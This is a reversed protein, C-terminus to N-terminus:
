AIHSSDIWQLDQHSVGPLTALACLHHADAVLDHVQWCQHRGDCVEFAVAQPQAPLASWDHLAMALGQGSAKVVAEKRVWLRLFAQALCNADLSSLWEREQPHFFQRALQLADDVPRLREVDVGVPTGRALALMCCEGSHSLSFHWDGCSSVRPAQGHLAVIDIDTDRLGTREALLRRLMLRGAVFQRRSSADRLSLAREREGAPLRHMPLPTEPVSMAFLEVATAQSVRAEGKEAALKSRM